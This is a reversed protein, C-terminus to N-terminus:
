YQIVKVVSVVGNTKETVSYQKLKNIYKVYHAYSNQIIRNISHWNYYLNIWANPYM